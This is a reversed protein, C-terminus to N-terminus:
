ADTLRKGLKWGADTWEAQFRAQEEDPFFQAIVDPETDYFGSRDGRDGMVLFPADLIVNGNKGITLIVVVNEKVAAM